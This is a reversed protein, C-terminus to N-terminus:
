EPISKALFYFRECWAVRLLRLCQPLPKTRHKEINRATRSAGAATLSKSWVM